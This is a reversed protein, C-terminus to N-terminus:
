LVDDTYRVTHWWRFDLRRTDNAAQDETQSPLEMLGPAVDTENRHWERCGSCPWAPPLFCIYIHQIFSEDKDSLIASHIVSVCGRLIPFSKLSTGTWNEVWCMVGFKWKNCLWTWSDKESKLKLVKLIFAKKQPCLLLQQQMVYVSAEQHSRM